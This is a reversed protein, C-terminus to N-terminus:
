NNPSNTANLSVGSMLKDYDTIQNKFLQSLTSQNGALTGTKNNCSSTWLSSLREGSENLEYEFLTGLPCKGQPNAQEKSTKREALFGANAIAWLFESYAAENNSFTNTQIINGNYGAIVDVRRQFQGVTIRISRHIDEGNIIGRQLYSVEAYTTSYEPLPKPREETPRNDGGGSFVLILGILMLLIVVVFGILYRNIM